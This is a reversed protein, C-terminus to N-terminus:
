YDPSVAISLMFDFRLVVCIEGFFPIKRKAGLKTDEAKLPELLM